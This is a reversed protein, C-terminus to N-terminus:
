FAKGFRGDVCCQVVMASGDPREAVVWDRRYAPGEFADLRDVLGPLSEATLVMVPVAPGPGTRLIPYGQWDGLWGRLTAPEWSGIGAVLGHNAEGPRLTGYTALRRSPWDLLEDLRAHASAVEGAPLGALDAVIRELAERDV